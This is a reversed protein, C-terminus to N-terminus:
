RKRERDEGKSEIEREIKSEKQKDSEKTISM